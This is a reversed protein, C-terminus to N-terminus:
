IYHTNIIAYCTCLEEFLQKAYMYSRNRLDYSKNALLGITFSKFPNEWINLSATYCIIWSPPIVIIKSVFTEPLFGFFVLMVIVFRSTQPCLHVMTRTM